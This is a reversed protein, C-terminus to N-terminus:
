FRISEDKWSLSIEQYLLHGTWFFFVLFSKIFVYVCSWWNMVNLWWFMCFLGNLSWYGHNHKWQWSIFLQLTILSFGFICCEFVSTTNWWNMESRTVLWMIKFWDDNNPNSNIGTLLLPGPLPWTIHSCSMHVLIAEIFVSSFCNEIWHNSCEGHQYPNKHIPIQSSGLPLDIKYSNGERHDYKWRQQNTQRDTQNDARKETQGDIQGDTLLMASLRRFPNGHFELSIKPMPCIINQLM